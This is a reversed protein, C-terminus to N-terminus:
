YGRKQRERNEKNKSMYMNYMERSTMGISAAYNMFFHLMDIIEFKCEIQDSPSLDSFKKESYTSYAKKWKKWIANGDGDKIGGLADTAEHIEDILSHTNTHWFEMIERLTMNEFDYGYVNKQTEAQLKLIDGLTDPGVREGDKINIPNTVSQTWVDEIELKACSNDTNAM